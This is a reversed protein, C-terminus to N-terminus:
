RRIFIVVVIIVGIIAILSFGSMAISTGSLAHPVKDSKLIAIDLNAKEAANKMEGINDDHIDLKKHAMKIKEEIKDLAQEKFEFSFEDTNDKVLKFENNFKTVNAENLNEEIYTSIEFYLNKAVCKEPLNIVITKTINMTKFLKQDCIIQVLGATREIIFKKASKEFVLVNAQFNDSCYEPSENYLRIIRKKCVFFNSVFNKQCNELDKSSLLVAFRTEDNCIMIDIDKGALKQFPELRIKNKLNYDYYIKNKLQNHNVLPLKIISKIENEHVLTQSNTIQYYMYMSAPESEFLVKYNDKKHTKIIEELNSHPFLYMNALSFKADNFIGEIIRRENELESGIAEGIQCFKESELFHEIMVQTENIALNNNEEEVELLDIVSKLNKVVEHDTEVVLEIKKMEKNEDINAKVLDQTLNELADIQDPTGTEVLTGIIEGLYRFAGRKNRIHNYKINEYKKDSNEIGFLSLEKLYGLANSKLKSACIKGHNGPLSDLKQATKKLNDINAFINKTSKKAFINLFQDSVIIKKECKITGIIPLLFIPFLWNM